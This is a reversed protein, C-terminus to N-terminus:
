KQTAKQIIQDYFSKRGRIHKLAATSGHCDSQHFSELDPVSVQKVLYTCTDDPSFSSEPDVPKGNRDLYQSLATGGKEDIAVKGAVVFAHILTYLSEPDTDGEDAASNNYEILAWIPLGYVRSMTQAFAACMGSVWWRPDSVEGDERSVIWARKGGVVGIEAYSRSGIHSFSNDSDAVDQPNASAPASGGTWHNPDDVGSINIPLNDGAGENLTRLQLILNRMDASRDTM